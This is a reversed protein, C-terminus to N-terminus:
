GRSLVVALWVFYASLAALAVGSVLEAARRANNFRELWAGLEGAFLGLFLFPMGRGM